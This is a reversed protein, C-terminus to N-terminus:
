SLKTNLKITKNKKDVMISEFDLPRITPPVGKQRNPDKRTDKQKKGKPFAVNDSDANDKETKRYITINELSLYKIKDGSQISWCNVINNLMMLEEVYGTSGYFRDCILDIRGEEEPLVYNEYIAFDPLPQDVISDRFIDYLGDQKRNRKLVEFTFSIM